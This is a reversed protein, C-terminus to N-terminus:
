QAPAKKIKIEDGDFSIIVRRDEPTVGMEEVWRTPLSLRYSKANASATGGPKTIIINVGRKNTM